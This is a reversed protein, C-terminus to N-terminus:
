SLEKNGEIGVVYEGQNQPMMSVNKKGDVESRSIVLSM